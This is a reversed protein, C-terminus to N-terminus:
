IIGLVRAFYNLEPDKFLEEIHDDDVKVGNVKASLKPKDKGNSEYSFEMLKVKNDKKNLEKNESLESEYCEEYFDCENCQECEECKGNCCPCEDCDYECLCEDNYNFECDDCDLEKDCDNCSDCSVGETAFNLEYEKPFKEKFEKLKQEYLEKAQKVDIIAANVEELRKQAIKEKELEKMKKGCKTVCNVYEDLDYHTTGCLDCVYKENM